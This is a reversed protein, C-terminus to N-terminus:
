SPDQRCSCDDEKEAGGGAASRPPFPAAQALPTAVGGGSGSASPSPTNTPLASHMLVMNAVGILTAAMAVAVLGQVDALYGGIMPGVCFAVSCASSYASLGVATAKRRQEGEPLGRSYVATVIATVVTPTQKAGAIIRGLYFLPLSQRPISWALVLYALCSSGLSLLLVIKSSKLKDVCFGTLPTSITQMIGYISQIFGLSSKSMGLALCYQPLLPVVMAVTMMDFFIALFFRWSLGGRGTRTQSGTVM